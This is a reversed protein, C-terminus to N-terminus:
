RSVTQQVKVAGKVIFEVRDPWTVRIDYIGSRKTIVATNAASLELYLTNAEFRTGFTIFPSSSEATERVQALAATAGELVNNNAGDKLRFGVKFTQGKVITLDFKAPM